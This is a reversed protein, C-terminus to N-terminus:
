AIALKKVEEGKNSYSWEGSFLNKMKDWVPIPPKFLIPKSKM